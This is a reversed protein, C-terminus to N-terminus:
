ESGEEFFTIASRFHEEFEDESVYNEGVFESFLEERIPLLNNRFFTSLEPKTTMDGSTGMEELILDRIEDEPYDKIRKTLRAILNARIQKKWGIEISFTKGEIEFGCLVNIVRSVHGSSCTDAMDILEELMRIKLLDKYEHSVILRWIKNFMSQLTQGGGYITQDLSIRLLSSRVCDIVSKKKKEEKDDNPPIYTKVLEEIERQADDFTLFIGENNIESRLSALYLIFKKISDDIDDDHVNQRNNYITSVGHQTRGLLTIIEKGIEKTKLSGLRVLLDAADARLNYDLIPDEAFSVCTKEVIDIVKDITENGFNGFINDKRPLQLLYQASLIKYRIFTKDHQFFSFYVDNLYQPKFKRSSDKQIGVITKYRFECELKENTVISVFRECTDKYYKMTEMLTRIIDIQLPIPLPYMISSINNFCEYGIEKNEDYLTRACETKINLDLNSSLVISKILSRFIFNPSFSFMSTIKNVSEYCIDVNTKSLEELALIRNCVSENGDFFIELLEDEDKEKLCFSLSNENQLNNVLLSSILTTNKIEQMM